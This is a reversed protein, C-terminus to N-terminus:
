PRAGLPATVQTVIRVGPLAAKLESAAFTIMPHFQFAPGVFWILVVDPRVQRAFRRLAARDRWKWGSMVPHVTCNPTEPIDGVNSTLVDVTYGAGGLEAALRAIHDAEAIAMPPFVGTIVLIKRPTSRM